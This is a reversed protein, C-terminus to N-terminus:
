AGEAETVGAEVGGPGGRRCIFDLRQGWGMLSCSPGSFWPPFSLSPPPGAPVGGFASQCQIINLGHALGVGVGPGPWGPALVAGPVTGLCGGPGREGEGHDPESM